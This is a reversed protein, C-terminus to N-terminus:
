EQIEVSMPRFDQGATAYEYGEDFAQKWTFMREVHGGFVAFQEDGVTVVMAETNQPWDKHRVWVVQFKPFNARSMPVIKPTPKIRYEDEAFNFGLFNSNTIAKWDRDGSNIELHKRYQVDKKAKHAFVIEIIQDLTNRM